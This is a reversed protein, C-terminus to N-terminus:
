MRIIYLTIVLLYYLIGNNGSKSMKKVFKGFGFGKFVDVVFPLVNLSKLVLISCSDNKLGFTKAWNDLIIM